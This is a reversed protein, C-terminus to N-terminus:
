GGHGPWFIATGTTEVFRRRAETLLRRKDIGVINPLRLTTLRGIPPLKLLPELQKPELENIKLHRLPTAAFLTNVKALLDRTNLVWASDVFGRIFLSGWEVGAIAPLEDYWRDGHAKLLKSVRGRALELNPYDPCHHWAECQLRILEGREPQGNEELWDAYVLRPTDDAPNECIARFLADGDSTM